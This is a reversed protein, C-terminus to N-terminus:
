GGGCAKVDQKYQKAAASVGSAFAPVTIFYAKAAAGALFSQALAPAGFATSSGMGYKLFAGPGLLAAGLGLTKQLDANAKDTYSKISTLENSLAAAVCVTYPVAAPLSNPASADSPNPDTRGCTSGICLRADPRPTHSATLQPHAFIGGLLADGVVDIALLGGAFIDQM